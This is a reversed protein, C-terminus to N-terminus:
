YIEVDWDALYRMLRTTDKTNVVGDGNVDLAAENVEVDWDALYRMLRTTDKTNVVGDGNIDGPTYDIFTIVGDDCFFNVNSEDADYIDEADYTVSITTTTDAVADDSVNFTLTVFVDDGEYNSFGNVWYVVVNGNLSEINEPLVSQGGMSTNYQVEKLTLRTSDYEVNIRMSTIGPNNKLSLKVTATKGIVANKSDVVVYPADEPIELVPINEMKTECCDDCVFMVVGTSTYTPEVTVTGADWNHNAYETEGCECVHSHKVDDCKTWDGFVHTTIRDVSRTETADCVSCTHLIEGEILHTPSIQVDGEDWTHDLEITEGCECACQHQTDNLLYWDSYIHGESPLITETKTAGCNDVQCTYTKIGSSTHTASSTIVGDGWEHDFNDSANVTIPYTTTLGNYKVTVISTGVHCLSPSASFSLKDLQAGDLVEEVGSNKLAVIAIGDTTLVDGQEYVTQPLTIIKIGVTQEAVINIDYSCTLPVTSSNSDHDYSVIVTETGGINKLEPTTYSISFNDATIYGDSGNNYNIRLLLGSTDFTTNYVFETKGLEAIEISIPATKTIRVPIYRECGGRVIKIYGIRSSVTEGCYTNFTYNYDAVIKGDFSICLTNRNFKEDSYYEVDAVSEISLHDDYKKRLVRETIYGMAFDLNINKTWLQTGTNNSKSLLNNILQQEIDSDVITLFENIGINAVAENLTLSKVSMIYYDDVRYSEYYEKYISYECEYTVVKAEKIIKEGTESVRFPGYMCVFCSFSGGSHSWGFTNQTGIPQISGNGEGPAGVDGYGKNYIYVISNYSNMTVSNDTDDGPLGNTGGVGRFGTPGNAAYDGFIKDGGRGGDGGTGGRGGNGGKGAILEIYSNGYVYLASSVIADGGKGGAGGQGGAGGWGGDTASPGFMVADEGNGGTGGKGGQGGNGGTGGEIYVQTTNIHIEKAKIGEGGDNGRTGSAGQYGTASSPGTNGQAGQVGTSGEGGKIVLTANGLVHLVSNPINIAPANTTGTISNSSGESILYIPSEKSCSFTGSIESGIINVNELIIYVPYSNEEDVVINIGSYTKGEEGKLKVAPSDGISITSGVFSTLDIEQVPFSSFDYVIQDDCNVLTGTNYAVIGGIYCNENIENLAIKGKAKLNNIDGHSYGFLGVYDNTSESINIGTITNYNGYLKGMFPAEANGIPNWNEYMSLDIDCALVYVGTLDNRIADFEEATTIIKADDYITWETLNEDSMDSIYDQGLYDRYFESCQEEIATGFYAKIAKGAEVISPDGSALLLDWLPLLKLSEDVLIESTEYTISNFFNNVSTQSFGGNSFSSELAEDAGYSVGHVSINSSSSSGSNEKEQSATISTELEALGDVGGSVSIESETKVSSSFASSLSEGKYTVIAEGGTSYGILIHTGFKDMFDAVDMGGEAVLNATSIFESSIMNNSWASQLNLPSNIDMYSTSIKKSAKLLAYESLSESSSSSVTSINMKSKAELSFLKIKGSMGINAGFSNSQNKLYSDMSKIYSYNYSTSAGTTRTSTIHEMVSEDFIASMSVLTSSTLSQSGLLNYGKGLLDLDEYDELTTVDAASVIISSFPVLFFALVVVLFASIVRKSVNKKM